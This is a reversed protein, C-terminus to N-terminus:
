KYDPWVCEKYCERVCGGCDMKDGWQKVRDLPQKPHELCEVNLADCMKENKRKKMAVAKPVPVATPIATTTPM